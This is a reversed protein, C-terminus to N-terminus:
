QPFEERWQTYGTNGKLNGKFFVAVKQADLVDILAKVHEPNPQYVRRGNTAAGIVAWQLPVHSYTRMVEAVDWSLPEFSMWKVKARIADLVDLGTKFMRRQQDPTMVKGYMSTPPMSVGVWVNDPFHFQKLRPANKTLLQFTHRANRECMDLVKQVHETPVHIGMLDSMSDIFIRAPEKVKEPEKLRDEHWYHHNFGHEFFSPSRMKNAVAKAYCITTSGDELEWVCEHDCGGVANLTFDTWEIGRQDPSKYQKNM